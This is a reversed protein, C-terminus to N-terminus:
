KNNELYWDVFRKVGEEVSTQPRFNVYEELKSVDAHTAPVDGAQIDMFNKKATKGLAKELAEIYAMLQVPASNGINFVQAPANSVTGSHNSSSPTLNFRPIAPKPILRTISEVIDDVYTFDRIMKGHNFVNIPEDKLMADAFLFLAMDPRGWPGYVTFFRLGTTPLDFLHSYSHAFLENAKKTAAYLAMPRDTKQDESLPMETNLGYVSSTSAYILHKVKSYRAGELISLFGDINSHTYARPNDISYRVGAQAALNVVYDFKQEVM